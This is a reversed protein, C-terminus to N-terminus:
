YLSPFLHHYHDYQHGTSRKVDKKKKKKKKPFPIAYPSLLSVKEPFKMRCSQVKPQSNSHHPGSVERQLFLFLFIVLWDEHSDPSIDTFTARLGGGRGKGWGGEM